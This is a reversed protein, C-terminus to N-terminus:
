LEERSVERVIVVPNESILVLADPQCRCGTSVTANHDAIVARAVEFGTAIHPHRAVGTACCKSCRWPTTSTAVLEGCRPCREVMLCSCEQGKYFEHRAGDYGCSVCTVRAPM